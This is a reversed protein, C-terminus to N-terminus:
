LKMMPDIISYTNINYTLFTKLSQTSNFYFVNIGGDPYIKSSVLNKYSAKVGTVTASLSIQWHKNFVKNFNLNLRWTNTEGNVRSEKTYWTFVGSPILGEEPTYLMFISNKSKIYRGQITLSNFLTATLITTHNLTPKLNPNGEIYTLSDTFQGYDQIISISPNVITMSYNLRFISQPLPKWMIHLGGRPNFNTAKKGFYKNSFIQFGTNLSISLNRVGQFQVSGSFVNKFDSTSSLKTGTLERDAKYHIYTFYESLSFYWKNNSSKRNADIGANVFGSRVKRDDDLIYGSSRSINRFTIMDTFSYTVRSNLRWQKIKGRYWLGSNFNIAGKRGYNLNETITDSIIDNFVRKLLNETNNKSSSPNLSFQGSLSHSNNIDYDIALSGTFNNQKQFSNPKSRDKCLSEITYSNLPYYEDYYEATGTKSFRYTTHFDLNLKNHTYTFYGQSDSARLNNGEGNQNGPIIKMETDLEGELGEYIKKVHLDIVADYESYMGTPFSTIIVKDFREPKLRLIFEADKEVGDILILINKSGNFNIERKVPDYFIGQLKGLLEGTNKSGNLFKKSITIIDENGQSKILSEDIIIEDLNNVKISDVQTNKSAINLTDAKSNYVSLDQEMANIDTHTYFIIIFTLIFIYKFFKM